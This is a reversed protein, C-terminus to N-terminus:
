RFPAGGGFHIVCPIGACRLPISVPSSSSVLPRIGQDGRIVKGFRDADHRVGRLIRTLQETRLGRRRIHCQARVRRLMRNQMNEQVAFIALRHIGPGHGVALLVFAPNRKALIKCWRASRVGANSELAIVSCEIHEQMDIVRLHELEGDTHAGHSGVPDITVALDSRM